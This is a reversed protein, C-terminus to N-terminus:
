TAPSLLGGHARAEPTTHARVYYANLINILMHAAIAGVLTGTVSVNLAFALGLIASSAAWWIGSRGKTRHLCAFLLTPIWIGLWAQLVGRFLLEEGVAAVLAYLWLVRPSEARLEPAFSAVLDRAGLARPLVARTAYVTVAATLLGLGLAVSARALWPLDLWPTDPTALLSLTASAALLACAFVLRSRQPNRAEPLHTASLVALPMRASQDKWLFARSVLGAHMSARRQREYGQPYALFLAYIHV